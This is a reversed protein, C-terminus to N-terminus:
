PRFVLLSGNIRPRTDFHFWTTGEEIGGIYAYVGDNARAKKIIDARMLDVTTRVPKCDIACGLRHQSAKAGETCNLPRYGRYRYMGGNHWDNVVLPGYDVRMQSIVSLARSDMLKISEDGLLEYLDPPMFEQVKFGPPCTTM